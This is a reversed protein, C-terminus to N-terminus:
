KSEELRLSSYGIEKELDIEKSSGQDWMGEDGVSREKGKDRKDKIEKRERRSDRGM